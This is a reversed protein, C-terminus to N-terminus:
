TGAISTAKCLPNHDKIKKNKIKNKKVFSLSKIKIKKENFFIIMNDIVANSIVILQVPKIKATLIPLTWSAAIPYRMVGIILM